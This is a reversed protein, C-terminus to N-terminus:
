LFRGQRKCWGRSTVPVTGSQDAKREQLAAGGIGATRRTGKVLEEGDVEAKARNHQSPKGAFTGVLRSGTPTGKRYPLYEKINRGELKSARRVTRCWWSAGSSTNGRIEM